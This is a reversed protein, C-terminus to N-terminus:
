GGSPRRRFLVAWVLCGVALVGVQVLAMPLTDSQVEHSEWLAGVLIAFSLAAFLLPLYGGRLAGQRALRFAALGALGFFLWDVVVIAALVQAIKATYIYVLAVATQLALVALPTQSHDGLRAFPRFFCGDRAMAWLIRPTGLIFGNLVGLASLGIAITIVTAGSEPLLRAALDNSARPSGDALNSLGAAGFQRLLAHNFLVYLLAALTTGGLIALPLNREPRRVEEALNCVNQWGGYTFLVPFMALCFASLGISGRVEDAPLPSVPAPSLSDAVPELSLGLTILVGLALVKIATLGVSVWAGQRVGLANILTLAIVCLAAVHARGGAGLRGGLLLDINFAVVGAMIAMGGTNITLLAAWGSLFAPLSGFARALYAYTGGARPVASALRSFTLAGLLAIFGGLAWAGLVASAVPARKAVEAPFLFIGVGVIGGVVIAISDLLGLARRLESPAASHDRIM